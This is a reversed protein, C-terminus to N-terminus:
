LFLMEDEEGMKVPRNLSQGYAKQDCDSLLIDWVCVSLQTNKPDM